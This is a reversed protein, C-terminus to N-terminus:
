FARVARVHYIRSKPSSSSSGNGFNFASANTSNGETSSWYYANAFTTGGNAVATRNILDKNYLMLLLEQESPLYWDGYTVNDIHHPVTVQLENCIRAAYTSGDDGIAVHAAIIINTNAKGALPGDGKAQTSGATGAYWRVGTSQDEKACVFGHQRTEDVWVVIGGHAFDGPNLYELPYVEETIVNDDTIRIGPGATLKNQKNNWASTDSATIARAVSENFVPDTETVGGKVTEATKAFLAYPVSLLQSTAAITYNTGGTLDTEAKIFYQGNSWDIATFEGSVVSGTGIEISVLGNSNTAPNQREVYVASGSPSGQLISIQMGVVQNIVLNNGADRVVAQFSMKEPVQAFLLVPLFSFIILFLLSALTKYKEM